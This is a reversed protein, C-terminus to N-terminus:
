KKAVPKGQDGRETPLTLTPKSPTANPSAPGATAMIFEQHPKPNVYEEFSRARAVILAADLANTMGDPRALKLCALRIEVPSM